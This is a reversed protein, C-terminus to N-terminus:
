FEYDVDRKGQRFDNFLDEFVQMSKEFIRMDDLEDGIPDPRGDPYYQKMVDFFSQKIKYLDDKHFLSDCSEELRKMEWKKQVEVPPLSKAGSWIGAIAASEAEAAKFITSIVLRGVFAISPDQINFTHQYINKLRSNSSPTDNDVPISYELVGDDFIPSKIHYGTALIVYDVDKLIDGNILVIEKREVVFERLKDVNQFSKISNAMHPLYPDNRLNRSIIVEKAVSSIYQGIDIASINSGVIVVKKGKFMHPDRYSKAHMVSGPYRALYQALGKYYPIFPTSFLGQAMIIGDFSEKYWFDEHTNYARLTLVWKNNIKQAHIVETNFRIYEKLRNETAFDTIRNILSKHPIFPDLEKHADKYPRTTSYQLYSEPTNTYLKPYVGSKRWQLYTHDKSTVIPNEFSSTALEEASPQNKNKPRIVRLDNYRETNMIEQPPMYPDSEYNEVNWTGGVDDKQEFGVIKTFAPDTAKGQGITSKGNSDTHLLEFVAALGSLGGAGIVAVEKIRISGELTM